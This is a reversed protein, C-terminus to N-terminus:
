FMPQSTDCGACQAISLVIMLFVGLLILGITKERAEEAVDSYGYLWVYLAGAIAFLVLWGGINEDM